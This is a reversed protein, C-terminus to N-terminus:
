DAVARFGGWPSNEVQQIVRYAGPPVAIPGHDEHRLAAGAAATVIREAELVALEAGELVHAHGTVEGEALVHRNGPQVEAGEPVAKIPWLLVDGQVVPDRTEDREFM